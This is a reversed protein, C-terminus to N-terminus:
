FRLSLTVRTVTTASDVSVRVWEGKTWTKTWGTLTLDESKLASSLTPKASACVSDEVTAPYNEYSDKWLDIVISGAQDATLKASLITVDFPVEFDYVVGPAIAQGGGDIVIEFSGEAPGQAGQAGQAGQTGQAGDAGQAGQNGQSGQPGQDGPEGQPGPVVSDAGPDGQEGKPGQSGEAGQAGDPGQPGADGQAGQDGKDGVLTVSFLTNNATTNLTGVHDLYTVQLKSYGTAQIVGTLRFKVWNTEFGNMRRFALIAKVASSSGALGAVWDRIDGNGNSDDLFIQTVNAYTANNFRVQGIGPDADATTTSFTLIESDAGPNGQAGTAGNAGQYGQNGQHGQSGQTGDAGQPGADGQDGQDGKVGPVGQEGAVGQSGQAGDAGAAGQPGQDGKAGQPGPVFSDAGPDGQHGQSGQQGVDGQHGQSGQVGQPGQEGVAGQHGQSGQPGQDGTDGKSGQAGVEGQHGQVGQPGADGQFGQEGQAGVAGEPGQDGQPGPLLPLEDDRKWYRADAQRPGFVRGM